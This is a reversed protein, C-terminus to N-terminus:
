SKHLMTERCCFRDCLLMYCTTSHAASEDLVKFYIVALERTSPSMTHSHTGLFQKTDESGGGKSRARTSSTRHWGRPHLILVSSSVLFRPLNNERSRPRSALTPIIRKHICV